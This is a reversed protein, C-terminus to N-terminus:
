RINKFQFDYKKFINVIPKGIKDKHLITKNVLQGYPTTFYNGYKNSDDIHFNIDNKTCYIAKTKNWEEDSIWWGKNDKWMKTGEDKHYGLISFLYDYTINYKKLENFVKNDPLHGTLIHVEYGINHFDKTINSFLLPYKDIVGHIDIGIKNYNIM